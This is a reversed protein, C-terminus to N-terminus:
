DTAYDISVTALLPLTTFAAIAIHGIAESFIENLLILGEEL